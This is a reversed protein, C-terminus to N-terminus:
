CKNHNIIALLQVSQILNTTCKTDSYETKITIIFSVIRNSNLINQNRIPDNRKCYTCM